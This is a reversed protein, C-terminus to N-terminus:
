TPGDTILVGNTETACAELEDNYEVGHLGRVRYYRNTEYGSLYFYTDLMYLEGNETEEKTQEFEWYDLTSWDNYDAEWIDLFVTHMIKDVNRHALTTVNIRIRGDQMNAIQVSGEALYDGRANRYIVDSASIAEEDLLVSQNHHGVATEWNWEEALAVTTILFCFLVTLIGIRKIKKM